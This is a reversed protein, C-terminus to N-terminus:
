RSQAMMVLHLSAAISAEEVCGTGMPLVAGHLPTPSTGVIITWKMALLIGLM